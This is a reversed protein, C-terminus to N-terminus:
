KKTEDTCIGTEPHTQRELRTHRCNHQGVVGPTAHSLTRENARPIVHIFRSSRSIGEFIQLIQQKKGTIVINCHKNQTSTDDTPM